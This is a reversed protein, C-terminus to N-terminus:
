RAGKRLEELITDLDENSRELVTSEVGALCGVVFLLGTGVAGSVAFSQTAVYTLGVALLWLTWNMWRLIAFWPHETHTM